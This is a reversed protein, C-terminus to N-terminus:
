KALSDLEKMALVGVAIACSINTTSFSGIRRMIECEADVREELTPWWTLETVETDKVETDEKAAEEQNPTEVKVVM